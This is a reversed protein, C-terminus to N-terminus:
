YETKKYQGGEPVQQTFYPKWDCDFTVRLVVHKDTYEVFDRHLDNLLYDSLAEKNDLEIEVMVDMNSNREICNSHVKVYKVNELRGINYFVEKTYNLLEDNYFNREFKLLVYHIM